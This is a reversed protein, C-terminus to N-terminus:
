LEQPMCLLFMTTHIYHMPSTISSDHTQTLDLKDFLGSHSRVQVPRIDSCNSRSDSACISSVRQAQVAPCRWLAPKTARPPLAKPTIDITQSPHM